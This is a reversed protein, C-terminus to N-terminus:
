FKGGSNILTFSKDWFTLGFNASMCPSHQCNAFFHRFYPM